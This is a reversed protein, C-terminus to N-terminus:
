SPYIGIFVHEFPISPYEVTSLMCGGFLPTHFEVVKFNGMLFECIDKEYPRAVIIFSWHYQKWVKYYKQRQVALFWALM